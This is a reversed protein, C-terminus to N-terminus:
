LRKSDPLKNRRLWPPCIFYPKGTRAFDDQMANMRRLILETRETPKEYSPVKIQSLFVIELNFLFSQSLM